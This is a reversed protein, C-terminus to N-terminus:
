AGRRRVVCRIDRIEVDPLERRLAELLRPKLFTIHQSWNSSEVAVWLMGRQFRYAEAHEAIEDGVIRRWEVVVRWRAVAKDLGAGRLFARLAGGVHEMGPM